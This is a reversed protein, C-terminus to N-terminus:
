DHGCAAKSKAIAGAATQHNPPSAKLNVGSLIRLMTRSPWECSPLVPEGLRHQRAEPEIAQIPKGVLSAVVSQAWSCFFIEIM